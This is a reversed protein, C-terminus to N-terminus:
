VHTDQKPPIKITPKGKIINIESEYISGLRNRTKIIIVHSSVDQLHLLLPIHMENDKNIYRPFWNRMGEENLIKNGKSEVIELILLDQGHNKIVIENPILGTSKGTWSSIRIDPEYLAEIQHSQIKQITKIQKTKSRLDYIMLIFTAFTGIGGIAMCVDCVIRFFSSCTTM